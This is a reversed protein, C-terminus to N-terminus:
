RVILVKTTEVQSGDESSVYIVYVGSKVKKGSFNTGNWYAKGGLSITEYVLKGSVTTIKVNSNRVLGTITIDGHFDERVPNPYAYIKNFSTAGESAKGKFSVLGKDTGIFVDGSSPDIAISFIRNSPLPSNDVNFSHFTKLGDSSIHYVGNNETGFWKRDAGDVAMCTIIEKELLYDAENSGDNRPVKIRSAVPYDEQFIAWPRYYVLVGKDTGIWVYGSKDEALCYIKRTIEQASENWLRLQGVNRKDTETSPHKPGKYIDDTDDILTGNPNIVLLGQRDRFPTPFIVFVYDDKTILIQNTSHHGSMTEYTFSKWNKSDGSEKVKIGSSVSSNSMWINGDSDSDLGGVRTYNPAYGSINELASNHENYNELISSGEIEFLGSGWSSMYIQQDNISSSCFNFTDWWYQETDQKDSWFHIWRNNNLYSYEVNRRLNDFDNTVGGASVYVGDSTGLIRFANNSYTGNPVFSYDTNGSKVVLGHQKDGIYYKQNKQSYLGDNVNISEVVEEEFLYDEIKEIEELQTNYRSIARLENIVLESNNSYISRYNSKSSFLQWSNEAGIFIEYPKNSTKRVAAMRDAFGIVSVYEDSVGTVEQWSEFYAIQPDDIDALLVGRETAAYIDDGSIAIQNIRLNTSNIGLYYTDAIELKDLDILLIGFEVSCYVQGNNFYFDNIQKSGQMQKQKLEPINIVQELTVIDINGNTYGVIVQNNPLACLASIDIDSLGSVKSKTSFVESTKDYILLGVEASCFIYDETEVIRTCNRYSFHDAWDSNSQAFLSSALFLIGAICIQLKFAM